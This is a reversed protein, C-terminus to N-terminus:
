RPGLTIGTVPLDFRMQAAEVVDEGFTSEEAGPDSVIILEEAEFERLGDDAAQIPDHAGIHGRAAIGARRLEALASELRRRAEEYAGEDGTLRDLRSALTPAVVLAETERGAARELLTARMDESPCSADAIVVVRYIGDDAPRARHVEPPPPRGGLFAWVGAGLLVATVAALLIWAWPGQTAALFILVFYALGVGVALVGFFEVRRPKV